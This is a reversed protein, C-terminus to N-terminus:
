ALARSAEYDPVVEPNTLDATILEVNMLEEIKPIEIGFNLLYLFNKSKMGIVISKGTKNKGKENNRRKNM